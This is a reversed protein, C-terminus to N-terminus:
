RLCKGQPHDQLQHDSRFQKERHRRRRSRVVSLFHYQVRLLCISIQSSQCDESLAAGVSLLFMNKQKGYIM